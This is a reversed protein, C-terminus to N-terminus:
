GANVLALPPLSTTWRKEYLRLESHSLAERAVFLRRNLIRQWTWPEAALRQRM